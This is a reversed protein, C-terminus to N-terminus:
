KICFIYLNFTETHIEHDWIPQALDFVTFKQELIERHREMQKIILIWSKSKKKSANQSEIM